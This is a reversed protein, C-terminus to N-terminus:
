LGELAAKRLSLHLDYNDRRTTLVEIMTAGTRGRAQGYVDVFEGPSSPRAYEVDFLAPM